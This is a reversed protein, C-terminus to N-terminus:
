SEDLDVKLVTPFQELQDLDFLTVNGRYTALQLVRIIDDNENKNFHIAVAGHLTM